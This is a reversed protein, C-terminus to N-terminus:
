QEEYSMVSKANLTLSLHAILLMEMRTNTSRQIQCDLPFLIMEIDEKKSSEEHNQEVIM